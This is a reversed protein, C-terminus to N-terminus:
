IKVGFAREKQTTPVNHDPTALISDVRWPKRGALRLGEFAQPSTVEHIIHRDIYILASGDDRQQVLHSDWLKDYLTRASMVCRQIVALLLLKFWHNHYFAWILLVFKNNKHIANGFPITLIAWHIVLLKGSKNGIGFGPGKGARRRTQMQCLRRHALANGQQFGVEAGLQKVAQALLHCQSGGS